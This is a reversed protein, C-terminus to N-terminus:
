QCLLRRVPGFYLELPQSTTTNVQLIVTADVVAEGTDLQFPLDVSPLAMVAWFRNRFGFWGSSHYQTLQTDDLGTNDFGSGNFLVYRTQELLYGFGNTKPPRFADGSMMTAQSALSLGKYVIRDPINKAPMRTPPSAMWIERPRGAAVTSITLPVNNNKKIM